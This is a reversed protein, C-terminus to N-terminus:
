DIKCLVVKESSSCTVVFMDSNPAFRITWPSQLGFTGIPIIRIVKEDNTIHHINNSSSGAIYINGEFDTGLGRPNSLQANTYTFMTTDRVIRSVSNVGDGYVHDKMNSTSVYFSHGGTSKQKLKKGSLNFWTLTLGYPLIFTHGEVCCLGYVSLDSFDLERLLKM